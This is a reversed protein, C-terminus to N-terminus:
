KLHQDGQQLHSQVASDVMDRVQTGIGFFVPFLAVVAVILVALGFAIVWQNTRIALSDGKASDLKSLVLDLKGEMRAIKTETRAESAEIQAKIEERTLDAMAREGNGKVEVKGQLTNIKPANINLNEMMYIKAAVIPGLKEESLEKNAINQTQRLPVVNGSM